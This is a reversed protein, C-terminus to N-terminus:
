VEQGCVDLLYHLLSSYLCYIKNKGSLQWYWCGPMSIVHETDSWYYHHWKLSRYLFIRFIQKYNILKQRSNQKFCKGALKVVKLIYSQCVIKWQFMQRWTMSTKFFPPANKFPKMESRNKSVIAKLKSHQRAIKM